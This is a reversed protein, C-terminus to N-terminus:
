RVRIARAFHRRFEDDAEWVWTKDAGSQNEPLSEVLAILRLYEQDLDIRISRALETSEALARLADERTVTVAGNYRRRIL